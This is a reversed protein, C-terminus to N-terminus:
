EPVLSRLRKILKEHATFVEIDGVVNGYDRDEFKLLWGGVARSIQLYTTDGPVTMKVTEKSM